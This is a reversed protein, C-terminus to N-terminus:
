KCTRLRLFYSYLQQFRLLLVLRNKASLKHTAWNYFQVTKYFDTGCTKPVDKDGKPAICVDQGYKAKPNLKAKGSNRILNAWAAAEKSIALDLLLPGAGHIRRFANIKEVM